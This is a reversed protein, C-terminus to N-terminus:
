HDSICWIPVPSKISEDYALLYINVHGEVSYTITDYVQTKNTANLLKVILAEPTITHKTLIHLASEKFSEMTIKYTNFNRRCVATM